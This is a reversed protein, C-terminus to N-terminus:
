CSFFGDLAYWVHSNRYGGQYTPIIPTVGHLNRWAPYALLSNDTQDFTAKFDPVHLNGGKSNRRKTIIINVTGKINANDQHIPASINCNSITSSFYPTFRWRDPLRNKIAQLHAAYADPIYHSILGMSLKGAKLMAKVFAESKRDVHIPSRRPYPLRLHPKPACSGCIASYQKLRIAARQGDPKTYQTIREMLSKKVNDSRLQQDAINMLKQLDKPLSKLFLGVESGDEGVLICSETINAELDPCTEGRKLSPKVPKLILKPLSTISV